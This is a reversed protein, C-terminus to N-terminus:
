MRGAYTQINKLIRVADSVADSSGNKVVGALADAEGRIRDAYSMKSKDPVKRSLLEITRGFENELQKKMGDSASSIIGAADMRCDEIMRAISKLEDRPKELEATASEDRSAFINGLSIVLIFLFAAVTVLVYYNAHSQRPPVNIIGSYVGMIAASVVVYLIVAGGTVSSRTGGNHSKTRLSIFMWGWFVVACFISYGMQFSFFNGREGPQSLFMFLFVIVSVTLASLAAYSVVVKKINMVSCGQKKNYVYIM